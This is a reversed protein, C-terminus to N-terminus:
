CDIIEFPLSPPPFFAGPSTEKVLGGDTRDWSLPFLRTKHLMIDTNGPVIETSCSVQLPVAYLRM